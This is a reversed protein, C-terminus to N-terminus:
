GALERRFLPWTLTGEGVPPEHPELVPVGDFPSPKHEWARPSMMAAGIVAGAPYADAAAEEWADRWTNPQPGGADAMPLTAAM